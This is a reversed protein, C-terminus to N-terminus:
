YLDSKELFVALLDITKEKMSEHINHILSKWEDAM